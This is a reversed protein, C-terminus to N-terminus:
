PIRKNLWYDKANIEKSKKSEKIEEPKPTEKQELFGKIETKLEELDKKSASSRKSDITENNYVPIINIAEHGLVNRIAIEVKNVKFLKKIKEGIFTSLEKTKNSIEEPKTIHEKPIILVHGKSIPNLELVAIADENETLEYSSTKKNAIACFICQSEGQEPQIMNNKKLFEILEKDSMSNIEQIVQAKQEEPFTSEIQQILQERIKKIQEQM